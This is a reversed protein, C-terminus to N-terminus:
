KNGTTRKKAQYLADAMNKAVWPDGDAKTVGAKNLADARREACKKGTVMAAVQLVLLDREEVSLKKGHYSPLEEGLPVPAPKVAPKPEPTDTAKPIDGSDPIKIKVKGQDDFLEMQRDDEKPEVKINSTDNATVNDQRGQFLAQKIVDALSLPNGDQISRDRRRCLEDYTMGDVMVTLQRYGAAMAKAKFKKVRARNAADLKKLRDLQQQTNEDMSEGKNITINGKLM